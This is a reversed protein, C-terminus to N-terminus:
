ATDPEYCGLELGEPDTFHFRQGGPFAFIELTIAGGAALVADRAAVIDEVRIVPLIARSRHEEGAGNLALQCPDREHAAYDPGYGTFEWGFAKGYFAQQGAVSTVPLELYDFLAM